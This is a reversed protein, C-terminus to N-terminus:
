GTGRQQPLIGRGAPLRVAGGSKKPSLRMTSVATGASEDTPVPSPSTSRTNTWTVEYGEYEMNEIFSERDVAYELAENIAQILDLKWSDARLGAQYKGPKMRKKKSYKEPTELIRLGYAKCIEDNLQRHALLTERNQHLKRGSECSVSNVVLHNHLHSTDVHTVIVVEYGPFARQALELGIANAEQPTLDDDGPLVGADSVATTGSIRNFVDDAKEKRLHHILLIATEHIYALRKLASLDRYDSAYTNDYATSRIMQLTDIIILSTDMHESLFQELQEMLGDGLIRSETCFYVHAPTDETVDFLRNQIRLQSDEM